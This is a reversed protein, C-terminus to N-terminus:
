ESIVGDTVIIGTSFRKIYYNSVICILFVEQYKVIVILSKSLIDSSQEFNLLIEMKEFIRSM